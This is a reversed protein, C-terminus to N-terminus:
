NKKKKNDKKRTAQSITTKGCLKRCCFRIGLVFLFILLTLASLILAIIDLMWREVFSYQKSVSRLHYAGSINSFILIPTKNRPLYFNIECLPVCTLIVWRKQDIPKSLRSLAVLIIIGWWGPRIALSYKGKTRIALEIYHTVLKTPSVPRSRFLISLHKM